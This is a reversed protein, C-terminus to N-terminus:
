KRQCLLQGDVETRGIREDEIVALDNDVFRGDDREVDMGALQDGDAALRAVHVLLGVGIDLGDAGQFVADDGVEVSGLEHQAPHELLDLSRATEERRRQAHDDADRGPRGVDLNAGDAIRGLVGPSALDIHNVLGHGGGQTGPEVDLSGLAVHDDVDAATRGFDGADGEAADNAGLRDIDGAVDEGVVNLTVDALLM